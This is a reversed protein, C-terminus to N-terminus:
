QGGRPAASPRPPVPPARPATAPVPWRPARNRTVLIGPHREGGAADAVQVHGRDAEAAHRHGELVHDVMAIARELGHVAGEVQADRQEVGGVDVRGGPVGDAVVLCEDGLRQARVGARGVQIAHEDRRLASQGATRPLRPPTVRARCAQAGRALRATGSEVDVDDLQVLVMAVIGLEGVAVLHDRQPSQDIGSQDSADPERVHVTGLELDRQVHQSARGVAADHGHLVLPRRAEAAVGVDERRHVSSPM